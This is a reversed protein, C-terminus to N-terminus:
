GTYRLPDTEFEAKCALSCFCYPVGRHEVKAAAGTPDVAVGCVPDRAMVRPREELMPDPPMPDLPPLGSEESEGM